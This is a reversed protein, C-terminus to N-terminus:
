MGGFMNIQEPEVWLRLARKMANYRRLMPMIKNRVYRMSDDIDAKCSPWCYGEPFSCIIVPPKRDKLEGVIDCIIVSPRKVDRLFILDDDYRARHQLERATICHDRGVHHSRLYQAFLDADSFTTSSTNM